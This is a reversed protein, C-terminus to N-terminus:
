PGYVDEPTSLYRGEVLRLQGNYEIVYWIIDPAVYHSWGTTLVTVEEGNWIREVVTDDEKAKLPSNRVILTSAELIARDQADKSSRLESRRELSTNYEGTGMDVIM